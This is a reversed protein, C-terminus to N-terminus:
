VRTERWLGEILKGKSREHHQSIGKDNYRLKYRERLSKDKRLAVNRDQGGEKRVQKERKESIKLDYLFSFLNPCMSM